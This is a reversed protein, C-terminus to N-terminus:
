LGFQPRIKSILEVERYQQGNNVDMTAHTYGWAYPGHQSSTM